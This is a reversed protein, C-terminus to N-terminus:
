KRIIFTVCFDLNHEVYAFRYNIIYYQKPFDKGTILWQYYRGSDEDITFNRKGHLLYFKNERHFMDIYKM